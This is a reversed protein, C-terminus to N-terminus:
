QQGQAGRRRVTEFFDYMTRQEQLTMEGIAEVLPAYLRGEPAPRLKVGGGEILLDLPIGLSLSLEEMQDLNPRVRENEWRSITGASTHLKRGLYEQSWRRRLRERRILKGYTDKM